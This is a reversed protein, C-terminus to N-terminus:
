PGTNWSLRALWCWRWQVVLECWQINTQLIFSVNTVSVFIGLL